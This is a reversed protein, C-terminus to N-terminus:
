SLPHEPQLEESKIELTGDEKFHEVVMGVVRESLGDSEYDVGIIEMKLKLIENAYFDKTFWEKLDELGEEPLVILVTGGKKINWLFGDEWCSGGCNGDSVYTNGGVKLDIEERALAIEGRRKDDSNFVNWLYVGQSYNNSKM